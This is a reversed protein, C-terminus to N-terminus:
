GSRSAERSAPAGGRYLELAALIGTWGERHSEMVATAPFREHTLVVRTSRPAVREFEATVLTDNSYPSNWTFALKSPRDIVRYVGEHPIETDGAKM